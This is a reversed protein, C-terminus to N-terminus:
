YEIWQIEQHYKTDYEAMEEDTRERYLVSVEPATGDNREIHYLHYPAQENDLYDEDQWVSVEGESRMKDWLKNLDYSKNIRARIKQGFDM